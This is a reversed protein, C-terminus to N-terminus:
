GGGLIELPISIVALVAAILSIVLVVGNSLWGNTHEDLYSKDNMLVLFPLVGVPLSASTLAM